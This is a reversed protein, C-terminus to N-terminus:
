GHQFKKAFPPQLHLQFHMLVGVNFDLVANVDLVDRIEFTPQGIVQWDRLGLFMALQAPRGIWM